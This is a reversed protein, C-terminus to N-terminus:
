VHITGDVIRIDACSQWIQPSQECDWRFSLLYDGIEINAPVEVKDVISYPMGEFGTTEPIEQHFDVIFPGLYSSVGPLPEEFQTMGPPCQVMSFGSCDQACKEQKYWQEGGAQWSEDGYALDPQFFDTLNPLLSGCKTQDCYYCSPIPNRAWESGPPFTGEAVVVRPLEFRPLEVFGEHNPIIDSYQLWSENGHFRLVNRQFCEETVNGGKKCLRWSYGGGHNALMAWAVEVVDGRIWETVESEPLELADAGQSYTPWPYGGNPIPVGAGGNVGCGSGLVPASGPARWPFKRSWDRPGSAVHVNYTRHEAKNLTPEGPIVTPQSFWFAPEFDGYVTSIGAASLNGGQRSPPFTMHGHGDCTSILAVAAYCRLAIM